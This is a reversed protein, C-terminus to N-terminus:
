IKEKMKSLSDEFNELNKRVEHPVDESLLTKRQDELSSLLEKFTKKETESIEMGYGMNSLTNELEQTSLGLFFVPLHDIKKRVLSGNEVTIGYFLTSGGERAKKKIKKEKEEMRNGAEHDHVEDFACVIDGTKRNVMVTDIGNVYDDYKGTRVIIFDEKLFKHFLVSALMEMQGNKEKEKNELSIRVIEREDETNYEKKYFDKVSENRAGSWGLELADVKARHKKFVERPYGGSGKFEEVNIRGDKNVLFDIGYEDNVSGNIEESILFMLDKLKEYPKRERNPLEWSNM